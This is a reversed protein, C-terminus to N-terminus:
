KGARMMEIEAFLVAALISNAPTLGLRRFRPLSDDLSNTVIGEFVGGGVASTAWGWGQRVAMGAKEESESFHEDSTLRHYWLRGDQRDVCVKPPHISILGGPLSTRNLSAWVLGDLYLSPRSAVQAAHLAAGMLEDPAWTLKSSM